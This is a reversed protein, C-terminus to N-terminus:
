SIRYIWNLGNNNDWNEATDRFCFNLQNQEMYITNEWGESTREMNQDMVDSWSTPNGFGRHMVIQPAGSNALLGNYRIRVQKGDETLPKVQVGQIPESFTYPHLTHM